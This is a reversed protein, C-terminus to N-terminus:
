QLWKMEKAEDEVIVALLQRRLGINIRSVERYPLLEFCGPDVRLKGRMVWPTSLVAAAGQWLAFGAAIADVRRFLPFGYAPMRRCHFSARAVCEDARGSRAFEVVESGFQERAQDILERDILSLLSQRCFCAGIKLLLREWDAVASIVMRAAPNSLEEAPLQEDPGLDLAKRLMPSLESCRWGRELVAAPIEAALRGRLGEDIWLAPNHVFQLYLSAAQPNVTPKM